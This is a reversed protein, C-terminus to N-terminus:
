RIITAILLFNLKQYYKKYKLQPNHSRDKLVKKKEIEVNIQQTSPSCFIKKSIFIEYKVGIEIKGDKKFKVLWIISLLKIQNINNFNSM